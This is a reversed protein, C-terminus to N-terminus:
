KLIQKKELNGKSNKILPIAILLLIAVNNQCSVIFMFDYAKFLKVVVNVCLMWKITSKYLIDFFKLM